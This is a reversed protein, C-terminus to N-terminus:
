AALEEIFDDQNIGWQIPKMRYIECASLVAQDIHGDKGNSANLFIYGTSDTRSQEIDEWGFLANKVNNEAPTNVTKILKQEGRKAGPIAYDFKHILGSKGTFSPNEIARIKHSVLWEGVEEFFLARVNDSNIQFLDDVSAMAQMMMNMKAPLDSDGAKVYLEGDDTKSIGFGAIVSNLKEKKKESNFSFGSFELDSITEGLDTLTYGGTPSDGVVISMCDNNRNLMPTIIKVSDGQQVASMNAAVWKSYSDIITNAQKLLM